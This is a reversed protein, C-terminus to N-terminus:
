LPQRLLLFLLLLLLILLLLLLLLSFCVFLGFCARPPNIPAFHSSPEAAGRMTWDSRATKSTGVLQATIIFAKMLLSSRMHFATHTHPTCKLHVAAAAAAACRPRSPSNPATSILANAQSVHM